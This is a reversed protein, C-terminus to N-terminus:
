DHEYLISVYFFVISISEFLHSMGKLDPKREVKTKNLRNVIENIRKEVKITRVKLVFLVCTNYNFCNMLKLGHISVYTCYFIVFILFTPLLYIRTILYLFFYSAIALSLHYTLSLWSVYTYLPLRTFTRQFPWSVRFYFRKLGCSMVDSFGLM